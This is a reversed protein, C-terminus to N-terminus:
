CHYSTTSFQAVTVKDPLSRVGDKTISCGLFSVFNKGFVCKSPNLHLGHDTLRQFVQRLHSLYEEADQSSVLIDDICLICFDLGFLIQHIFHWFTQIVNRLGFPIHLYEFLGFPTTIKCDKSHGWPFSPNPSLSSNKDLTSFIIKKAFLHTCDQIRSVLYQDPITITNLSCYDGCPHWDGNSKIM